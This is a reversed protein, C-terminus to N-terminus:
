SLRCFLQHDVLTSWFLIVLSKENRFSIRARAMVKPLVNIWPSKAMTTSPCGPFTMEARAIMVIMANLIALSTSTSIGIRLCADLTPENKSATMTTAGEMSDASDDDAGHTADPTANQGDCADGVAGGQAFPVAITSSALGLALLVNFFKM